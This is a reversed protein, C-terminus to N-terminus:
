EEINLGLLDFYNIGLEASKSVLGNIIFYPVSKDAQIAMKIPRETDSSGALERKQKVKESEVKLAKLFQGLIRDEEAKFNQFSIVQEKGVQIKQAGVGIPLDVEMAEGEIKGVVQPMEVFDPPDSEEVVDSYNMILFILIITLADMLSTINLKAPEKPKYAFKPM